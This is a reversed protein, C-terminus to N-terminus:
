KRGRALDQYAAEVFMDTTGDGTAAGYRGDYDATPRAAKVQELTLGRAIMDQIRDRVITVMNRYDVVDWEDGIRGHGPVILTGGEQWNEPVALDIIRNLAALIGTFSGGSKADIVPYRTPTYVDGTVIVDSRRFFVISDGSTHAAPPHLLQIAEGNAFAEKIEGPYADTPWAGVPARSPEGTPASLAFLVEEHAIVSAGTGGPGAVVLGGGPRSGAKAIVENGGVHDPDASTNIIYRIPADSLQRVAGLVQESLSGSGADVLLVGDKGVQVAINGGAGVLM